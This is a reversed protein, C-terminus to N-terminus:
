PDANFAGYAQDPPVGRRQWLAALLAAAPLFAGGAELTVGIMDVHVGALAADLDDVHYAMLGDRGALEAAAPDDPDLGNRAAVDLRLLLSTVGGRLDDLIAQNTVALDPHAHEQRLDWGTQVAG